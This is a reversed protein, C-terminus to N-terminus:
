VSPTDHNGYKVINIVIPQGEVGAIPQIPKGDIQQVIERRMMKDKRIEKVYAEFDEPDEEWMQKLRGIISVGKPRGAPNGSVGKPFTGDPNRKRGQIVPKDM